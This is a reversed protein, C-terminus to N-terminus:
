ESACPPHTGSVIAGTRKGDNSFEVDKKTLDTTTFLKGEGTAENCILYEYAPNNACFTVISQGVPDEGISVIDQSIDSLDWYQCQTEM